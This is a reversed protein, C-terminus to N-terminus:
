RIADIRGMNLTFINGRTEQGAPNNYVVPTAFSASKKTPKKTQKLFKSTISDEFLYKVISIM